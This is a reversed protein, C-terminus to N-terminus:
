WPRPQRDRFYGGTPGGDPLTALWLATDAGEALSRSAGPGGMDSRVWGPDVANVLINEAKLEAALVRTVVNLGTKSLRYALSRRGMDTLSGMQSSINVIRGYKNKRMLPVLQQSLKLPGYCNTEMTKEVLDLDVDLPSIGRDIYIGANNVLIDLRRVNNFLHDSMQSINEEDTVDLQHFKVDLGQDILASAADTGSSIGRSTLFVRIGRQALQRCIELGIGRNGGTVLAIRKTM